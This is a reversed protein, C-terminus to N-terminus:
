VFVNIFVAEIAWAVVRPCCCFSATAAANVTLVSAGAALVCASLCM